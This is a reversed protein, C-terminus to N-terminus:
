TPAQPLLTFKGPVPVVASISRSVPKFSLTRSL